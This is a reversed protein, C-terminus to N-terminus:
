LRPIMYEFRSDSPTDFLAELLNSQSLHNAKNQIIKKPKHRIEIIETYYNTLNIM